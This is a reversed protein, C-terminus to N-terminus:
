GTKRKRRIGAGLGALATGLLLLSAPEPTAVAPAGFNYTVGRSSYVRTGDTHLFSTLEVTAFGSGGLQATIVYGPTCGSFTNQTCASIQANFGFPVTVFLTAPADPPIIVAGSFSLFGDYYLAQYAVGNITGPGSRIDLGLNFSNISLSQGVRAFQFNPVNNVGGTFTFNQGILTFSGGLGNTRLSGDTVVMADARAEPACVLMVAFLVLAASLKTLAPM